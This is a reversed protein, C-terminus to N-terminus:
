NPRAPEAHAFPDTPFALDDLLLRFDPRDRLPDLANETRLWNLERLGMAVAQRLLEMAKEGEAEGEVASVGSGPVEAFGALGAYSGAALVRCDASPSPIGEFLAVARRWAAVAGAPDGEARRVQGFRMLAEALGQRYLPNVRILDEYIAVARRAPARSEGIRGLILQAAAADVEANALEGRYHPVDPNQATLEERIALEERYLGMAEAPRGSRALLLGLNHLSWALDSRSSPMTPHDDSLKQNIALASRFESEAETPLGSAHLLIGLQRHSWALGSRFSTVAPHDVSLKRRIALAARQEALAEPLRGEQGLWLGIAGHSFALENRFSAVAPHDEALEQLIALGTRYEALAEETRGTRWLVVGIHSITTALDRRAELPAGADAALEDQQSRALRFVALAENARGTLFLLYGLRARCAALAARTAAETGAPQERVLEALLEEAKRYAAMAEDSQGTAALLSAVATLSRGVDIRTKTDAGGTERALAERYALVRRHAALADDKQGVQSTLEAVEFNAQGLARRSEPDSEQGLLAGLKGYFDVASKLLRDRLDKFSEEKLIFDESVGTHFTGIAEVALGYRAQLGSKARTLETNARAERSLAERLEANARTQVGLVAGLGVVGALVAVAAGTVATRNRRGWRRVRHSLPERYATVPEDAMWRELDEALAKPSAYRDTPKLAMAKLCIAELARDLDPAVQQPPHFDGKQVRPIVDAAPGALPPRGTLLYYLTAGLSYVDSRPGLRDGAGEAQEPSMYAPTGLASGPLTEASGGASAPILM